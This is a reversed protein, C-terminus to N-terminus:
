RQATAAPQERQGFATTGSRVITSEFAMERSLGERVAWLLGWEGVGAQTLERGPGSSAAHPTM